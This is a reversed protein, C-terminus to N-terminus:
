AISRGSSSPFQTGRKLLAKYVDSFLPLIDHSREFRKGWTEILNLVKSHIQSEDIDIISVEPMLQKNHLVQVLTNM